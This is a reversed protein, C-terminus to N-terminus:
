ELLFEHTRDPSALLDFSKSGLSDKLITIQGEKLLVDEELADTKKKLMNVESNLLMNKETYHKVEEWMIDREETVKPLIGRIISLEKVSEQLDNQLENMRDDKKMMQLELEKMKHTVCSLSDLTNQVECRLIDNSRAATALEGQLQEVEQDKSYLKDRLLTTLLKEAKLEYRSVDQSNPFGYRDDDVNQSMSESAVLDSKEHLTTSINQLGRLLNETGRRFGQVKMDSEIIFHVDLCSKNGEISDKKGGSKISELLKSSLHISDNLLSLGQKQLCFLRASLEEDLKFTIGKGGAKLRELLLVNEHRLSDVEQKYSEIERRLVQEVGTLRIQEMQLKQVHKESNEMHHHRKQVVESLEGRLGDITKEQESCTRFLGAVCSHLEKCEEEKERYSRETMKYIDETMKYKDQLEGNRQQLLRNEGIASDLRSTLDKCETGLDTFSSLERQLSVNQEALERVRERLREEDAKYKDVKLSWDSSRRDLERELVSQIDNKEEQLRQTRSDLELRASRLQEKLSIRDTIQSEVANSVELTLSIKEETLNRIRQILAPVNFEVDHLFLEQELEESLFLVRDQAEKFKSKLKVDLEDENGADYEDYICDSDHEVSSHNGVRDLPHEIHCPNNLKLAADRNLSGSYVDEITIPVVDPDDYDNPNDRSYIRPQCLKEVVHKAVDQPSEHVFGTEVWHEAGVKAGRFSHVRPPKKGSGPRTHNKSSAKSMPSGRQHHQEGDIYLDLVDNSVESSSLSSNQSCDHSSHIKYQAAAPKQLRYDSDHTVASFRKTKVHRDPTLTRFRSSQNHRHAEVSDSSSSPSSSQDSFGSLNRETTNGLFAASSFSRSRRLGFPSDVHHNKSSHKQTEFHSSRSTNDDKNKRQNSPGGHPSNEASVTQDTSFRSFFFKKM